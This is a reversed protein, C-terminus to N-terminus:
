SPVRLGNPDALRRLVRGSADLAEIRVPVAPVTLWALYYGDGVAAADETNDGMGVRVTETGAPVRGVLIYPQQAPTDMASDLTLGSRTDGRHGGIASVAVGLSGGTSRAVHCLLTDAGSVFLIASGEPRDTEVAVRWDFALTQGGKDATAPPQCAQAPNGSLLQGQAPASRLVLGVLAIAIVALAAVAVFM